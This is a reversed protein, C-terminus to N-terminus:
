LSKLPPPLEPTAGPKSCVFAAIRSASENIEDLPRHNLLGMILAATFADGAGVTDAVTTPFGPSESIEEGRRLVAGQAGRTLALLALQYKQMLAKIIEAETGKLGCLKALVPLEDDNLKLINAVGLSELIVADTSFPPRLNVDFVRLTEAPTAKLFQHITRRSPESRQGLSGFCIAQTTGALTELDESWELHDWATDMAFVYSAKGAKDLQVTVTGTPFDSEAVHTADVGKDKLSQIAKAGLEDRGVASVMKANAGLQAAHCAVNAPAGGFRAGDPFVDWLTEGLGVVIPRHNM